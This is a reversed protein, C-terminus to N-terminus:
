RNRRSNLSLLGGLRRPEKHPDFDRLYAFNLGNILAHAILPGVLSGTCAYMAGLIIGMLTASAMWVWRSPGGIQHLCGFVLAQGLLGMWPQLLGRFLLEEGLASCIALLIIAANSTKYTLPRLDCHLRTARPARGVLARSTMVVLGAVAVGMLGSYTLQALNSDFTLVPYPHTWPTVGRWNAVLLAVAGLVLYAFGVLPWRM